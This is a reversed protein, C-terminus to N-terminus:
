WYYPEPLVAFPGSLELDDPEDFWEDDERVAENFAVALELSPRVAELGFAVVLYPATPPIM